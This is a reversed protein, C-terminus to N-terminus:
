LNVGIALLVSFVLTLGATKGLWPNLAEGDLTALTKAAKLGLPLALLPLLWGWPRGFALVWLAPTLFALGLFSQYLRRAFPGGFRVALTRKGAVRDTHRDRLNNVVLVASALLGVPISAVWTDPSTQGAQVLYTGVVAGPGFFIFVFLEGLGLYGLPMPGGTYAVACVMGALGLVLIPVGGRLVLYLGILAAAGLVVLTGLALARPSLWGMQAARKPGLRQATDAGKLHDFADNSLNSALQLLLAGMLAALTPLADFAGHAWALGSGVLVPAAGVALTRPRAALFWAKARSPSPSAAVM